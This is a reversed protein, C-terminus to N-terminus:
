YAKRIDVGQYYTKLIEEYSRGARAMGYAGVQCLGVGHGYGRGHFTFSAISGDPNYERTMTFLTDRLKLAGRVKNGNVAVSGRSGTLEIQIARGSNGLRSPKLDRFEGINGALPHLKEAIESRTMTVDWTAVPSYRDSSAGTPNLEVELLDISGHQDVHFHLKENGIIKVSSVPTIRNTDWRFLCIRKSLSFEQSRNSGKVNITSGSNGGAGAFVGKRLIDPQTIEVWRVLLSLADGRRIPTTPRVTNDPYPQWYGNQLLYALANRANEAVSNGDSLNTIYYGADSASIKRKIEDAGFFSEAAFQLFGARTTLEHKEPQPENRNNKRVLKRANEIWSACEKQDVPAALSEASLETDIGAVGLIKAFELNRNALSGDDAIVTQDLEHKGELNTAGDEESETSCSVSKLYPVPAADFVNSFDETRGGCTSMYMANILKDQYYIALGSTKRVAQSAADKEAAIGGYVQNRTDATLDYGESRFSGMNHLAYTRAAISQAALAAFEPYDKPSMEAPVVGLLYEETGLQNVATIRGNQNLSIDLLGRYPKSEISLFNDDSAPMFLFGASSLLFVQEGRLALTLKGSKISATEQVIFADHYNKKISKELFTQADERTTFQGVRVQFAGISSNEHITTPVSFSDALEDKLKLAPQQKKYSAVQVQYLVSPEDSEQEVRVQISGRILQRAAEPKKELVYFEGPSSVRLEKASTTLGIRIPPGPLSSKEIVIKPPEQANIEPPAIQKKQQTTTQLTSPISSTGQKAAVSPTAVPSKPKAKKGCGASFLLLLVSIMLCSRKIWAGKITSDVRSNKM